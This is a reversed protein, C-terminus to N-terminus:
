KSDLPDTYFNDSEPGFRHDASRDFVRVSSKAPPSPKPTQSPGRSTPPAPIFTAQASAALKRLERLVQTHTESRPDFEPDKEIGRILRNIEKVLCDKRELLKRRTQERVV